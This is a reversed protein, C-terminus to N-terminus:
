IAVLLCKSILFLVAINNAHCDYKTRSNNESNSSVIEKSNDKSANDFNITRKLYKLCRYAPVLATAKLNM